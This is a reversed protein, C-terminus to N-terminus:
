QHTINSKLRQKWKKWQEYRQYALFSANYLIEQIKRIKNPSLIDNVPHGCKYYGKQIDPPTHGIMGSLRDHRDASEFTSTNVSDPKYMPSDTRYWMLNPNTLPSSRTSGDGTDKPITTYKWTPTSTTIKEPNHRKLDNSLAQGDFGPATLNEILALMLHENTPNHDQLTMARSSKLAISHKQYRAIIHARTNQSTKVLDRVAKTNQDTDHILLVTRAPLTSTSIAELSDEIDKKEQSHNTPGVWTYSNRLFLIKTDTDAGLNSDEKHTSHWRHNRANSSALANTRLISYTRLHTRCTSLIPECQWHVDDDRVNRAIRQIHQETSTKAVAQNENANPPTGTLAPAPALPAPPSPAEPPTAADIIEQASRLLVPEVPPPRTFTNPKGFPFKVQEATTAEGDGGPKRIIWNELSNPKRKRNARKTRQTDKNPQTSPTPGKEEQNKTDQPEHKIHLLAAHRISCYDTKVQEIIITQIASRRKLFVQTRTSIDKTLATPIHSIETDGIGMTELIDQDAKNWIDNNVPCQIRHTTTNEARTGCRTCTTTTRGGDTHEKPDAQNLIDLLFRISSNSPNKWMHKITELVAKCDKRVLEGRKIRHSWTKMQNELLTKKLAKRIDGHVPKDNQTVEGTASVTSETLTLYFPLENDMMKIDSDVDKHGQLAQWKAYRDAASNGLSPKDRKGTHSRVHEFTVKAGLKEKAEIARLTALLYPRASCRLLNINHPNSRALTVAQICSMSDSPIHVNVPTPPSRVSKNIAAMEAM